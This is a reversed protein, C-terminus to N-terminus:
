AAEIPNTELIEALRLEFDPHWGVHKQDALMHLSGRSVFGETCAPRIPFDAKEAWEFIEKAAEKKMEESAEPGLEDRKRQFLIEWEETLRREYRGLEGFHLLGHHSWRSRQVFARHYDRVAIALRAGGIDVLSLQRCFVKDLFAEIEPREEAVDDDIPLNNEHFQERLDSLYADFDDGQIAHGLGEVMQLLCKRNWWGELREMFASLFRPRVMLRALSRIDNDVQTINPSDQVITIASVLRRQQDATLEVYSAYASKLAKNTSAEAVGQLREALADNDRDTTALTLVGCISNPQTSATTVLLLRTAPLRLTGASIAECWVRMTKWLDPSADTLTTGKLHHKLQVLADDSSGSFELDDAAEIAMTWDPGSQHRQLAVLLAYRFQYAYGLSAAVANFRNGSSM